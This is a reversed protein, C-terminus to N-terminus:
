FSNKERIGPPPNFGSGFFSLKMPEEKDAPEKSM